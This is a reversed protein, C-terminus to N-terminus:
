GPHWMDIDFNMEKWNNNLCVSVASALQEVQVVLIIPLFIIVFDAM